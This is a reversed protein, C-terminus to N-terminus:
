TMYCLSKGVWQVCHLTREGLIPAKIEHLISVERGIGLICDDVIHAGIAWLLPSRDGLIPAYDFTTNVRKSWFQPGLRGCYSGMVHDWIHHRNHLFLAGIESLM